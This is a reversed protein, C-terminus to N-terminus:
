TRGIDETNEVPDGLALYVKVRNKRKEPNERPDRLTQQTRDKQSGICANM